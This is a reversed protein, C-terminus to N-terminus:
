RSMDVALGALVAEANSLVDAQGETLPAQERIWRLRSAAARVDCPDV